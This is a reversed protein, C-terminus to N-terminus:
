DGELMRRWLIIPKGVFDMKDGNKSLRGTERILSSKKREELLEVM